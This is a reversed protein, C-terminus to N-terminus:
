RLRRKKKGHKYGHIFADKYIKALVTQLWNWHEEALQEPTKISKVM